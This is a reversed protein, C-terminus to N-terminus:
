RESIPTKEKTINSEGPSRNIPYRAPKAADAPAIRMASQNMQFLSSGPLGLENVYRQVAAALLSNNVAFFTPGNQFRIARALKIFHEAAILLSHSINADRVNNQIWAKSKESIISWSIELEKLYVTLLAIVLATAWVENRNALSSIFNPISQSIDKNTVQRIINTFNSNLIFSGDFQQAM